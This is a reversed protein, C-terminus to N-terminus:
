AERLAALRSRREGGRPASLSERLLFIVGLKAIGSLEAAIVRPTELDATKIDSGALLGGMVPGVIFGLVFAAGIMGMGRARKEPPTVDAIYAQPAAINGPCAGAFARPRFGMWLQTAFGLWLYALAAAAMSAMLVPRRGIRDSLRGWLPAAIMSMLSFIALLLTVVQPSAGFREAYFPLLPIILGFGVLDVFVILFLIPMSAQQYRARMAPFLPRNGRRRM